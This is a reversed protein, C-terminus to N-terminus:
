AVVKNPAAPEAPTGTPRGSNAADGECFGCAVVFGSGEDENPLEFVCNADDGECVVVFLGCDDENLVDFGNNAEFECVPDMAGTGFM